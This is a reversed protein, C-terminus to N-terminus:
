RPRAAARPKSRVSASPTISTATPTSRSPWRFIPFHACIRTTKGAMFFSGTDVLVLGGATALAIVNGFSSLFALGDSLEELGLLLSVPQLDHTTASGTWLAEAQEKVLGM